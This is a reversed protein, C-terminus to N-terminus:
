NGLANAKLAAAAARLRTVRTGLELRSSCTTFTLSSSPHSLYLSHLLLGLASPRHFRVDCSCAEPLTAESLELQFLSSGADEIGVDAPLGSALTAYIQMKHEVSPRILMHATAACRQLEPPPLTLFGLEISYSSFLARYGEDADSLMAGVACVCSCWYPRYCFSVFSM